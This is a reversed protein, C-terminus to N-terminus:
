VRVPAGAAGVTAGVNTYSSGTATGSTNATEEGHHGGKVVDKVKQAIGKM